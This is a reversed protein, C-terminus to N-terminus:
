VKKENISKILYKKLVTLSKKNYYITNKKGKVKNINIKKSKFVSKFFFKNIKVYYSNFLNLIDSVKILDKNGYNKIFSNSQMSEKYLIKVFHNIDAYGRKDSSNGSFISGNKKKLFMEKFLHNHFHDSKVYKEGVLNFPRWIQYNQFLHKKKLIFNECKLKVSGIIHKKEYYVSSSSIFILKNIKINLIVKKLWDYEIQFRNNTFNKKLIRPSSFFYCINVDKHPFKKINSNLNFKKFRADNRSYFIFNKNNKVLSHFSSGILGSSGFIINKKM